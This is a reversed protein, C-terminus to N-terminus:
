GRWFSIQFCYCPSKKRGDRAFQIPWIWITLLVWFLCSGIIGYFLHVSNQKLIVNSANSWNMGDYLVEFSIMVKMLNSFGMMPFLICLPAAVSSPILNTGVAFVSNLILSVLGQIFFLLIGIGGLACFYVM